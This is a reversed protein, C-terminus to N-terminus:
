RSAPAACPGVLHFKHLALNMLRTPRLKPSATEPRQLGSLQSLQSPNVKVAERRIKEAPFGLSSREEPDQDDERGEGCGINGGIDNQGNKQRKNQLKQKLGHHAEHRLEMDRSTMEAVSSIM